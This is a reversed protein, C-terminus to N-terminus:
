KRFSMIVHMPKHIYCTVRRLHPPKIKARRMFRVMLSAVPMTWNMFAMASIARPALSGEMVGRHHLSSKDALSGGRM